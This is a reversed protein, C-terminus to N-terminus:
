CRPTGYCRYVVAKMSQTSAALPSAATCPSDHSLVLGLSVIAVASVIAIGDLVKYRLKM